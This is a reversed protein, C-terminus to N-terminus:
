FLGICFNYMEELSVVKMIPLMEFKSTEFSLSETLRWIFLTQSTCINIKAVRELGFWESFCIDAKAITTSPHRM